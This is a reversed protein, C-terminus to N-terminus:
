FYIGSKLYELILPYSCVRQLLFSCRTLNKMKYHILSNIVSGHYWDANLFGRMEASRSRLLRVEHAQM